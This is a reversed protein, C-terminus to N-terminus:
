ELRGMILIRGKKEAVPKRERERAVKSAMHNGAAGSSTASSRVTVTRSFALPDVVNRRLPLEVQYSVPKGM